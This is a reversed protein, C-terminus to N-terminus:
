GKFLLILILMISQKKSSGTGCFTNIIQTATAQVTTTSTMMQQTDHM